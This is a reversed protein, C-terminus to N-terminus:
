KKKYEVNIIDVCMSIYADIFVASIIALIIGVVLGATGGFIILATSAAVFILVCIFISIMIFLKM